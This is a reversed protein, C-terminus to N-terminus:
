VETQLAGAGSGRCGLAQHCGGSGGAHCHRATHGTDEVATGHADHQLVWCLSARCRECHHGAGEMATGDGRGRAALLTGM